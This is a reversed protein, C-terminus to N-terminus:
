ESAESRLKRAISDLQASDWHADEPWLEPMRDGAARPVVHVHLHFVSQGAATGNSQIINLGESRLAHRVRRATALVDAGVARAREEDLDWLDRVHDRPVVLVHGLVAPVDPLFSVSTPTEAVVRAPAIGAVIACFPCSARAVM